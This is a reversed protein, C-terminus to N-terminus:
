NVLPCFPHSPPVGLKPFGWFTGQYPCLLWVHHNTCNTPEVSKPQPCQDVFHHNTTPPPTKELIRSKQNKIIESTDLPWVMQNNLKAIATAWIYNSSKFNLTCKLVRFHIYWPWIKRPHEWKVGNSTCLGKVNYTGGIYRNRFYGNLLHQNELECITLNGRQHSVQLPCGLTVLCLRAFLVGWCNATMIDVPKLVFFEIAVGLVTPM